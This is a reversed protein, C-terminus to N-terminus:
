SSWLREELQHLLGLSRCDWDGLRCLTGLHEHDRNGLLADGFERSPHEITQRWTRHDDIGPIVVWALAVPSDLRKLASGDLTDPNRLLEAVRDDLREVPDVRGMQQRLAFGGAAWPTDCQWHGSIVRRRLGDDDVQQVL